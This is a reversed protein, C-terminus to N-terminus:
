NRFRKLRSCTPCGQKLRIHKESTKYFEGHIKCIILIKSDCDIYKSKHYQYLNGHIKKAQYIFAETSNVTKYKEELPLINKIQKRKERQQSLRKQWWDTKLERHMKFMQKSNELIIEKNKIYYKRAREKIKIKEIPDKNRNFMYERMYITRKLRRQEKDQLQKEIAKQKAYQQPNSIKDLYEIFEEDSNFKDRYM